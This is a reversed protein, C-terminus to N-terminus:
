TRTGYALKNELLSNLANQAPNPHCEYYIIIPIAIIQKDKTKIGFTM